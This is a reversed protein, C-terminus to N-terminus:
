GNKLFDLSYRNFEQAREVQVWHGTQSFTLCRV